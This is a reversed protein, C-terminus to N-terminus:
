SSATDDEIWQRVVEVLDRYSLTALSSLNLRGCIEPKEDLFREFREQIDQTGPVPTEAYSKLWTRVQVALQAPRSADYRTIDLGAADSLSKQYRHSEVDIVLCAKRRQKPQGFQKAGLFLGLEFPMNFRPLGSNDDLAMRSLDHIGFRCEKIIRYIKQLRIESSDDSELASRLRFGCITVSFLIAELLPRYDDDFPCNLFVDLNASPTAM